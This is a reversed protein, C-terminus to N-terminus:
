SLSDAYDNVPKLDEELATHYDSIVDWGDNGYVFRVWSDPREDEEEKPRSADYVFLYDGDTLMLAAKIAVADTSKKITVEEDGELVGLTYKGTKLLVDVTMDVITREVNTRIKVMSM